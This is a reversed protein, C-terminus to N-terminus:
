RPSRLPSEQLNVDNWRDRLVPSSEIRARVEPDALLKRGLEMLKETADPVIAPPPEPASANEHGMASHDVTPAGPRAASTAPAMGPMNSHSMELTRRSSSEPAHGMAAHDDSGHDATTPAPGPPRPAAPDAAASMGAHDMAGMEPEPTTPHAQDTPRDPVARESVRPGGDRDCAGAFAAVILVVAGARNSWSRNAGGGTATTRGRRMPLSGAVLALTLVSLAAASPGFGRLGASLAAPPAFAGELERASSPRVTAAGALVLLALLRVGKRTAKM